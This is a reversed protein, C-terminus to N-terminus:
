PHLYFIKYIEKMSVRMNNYYACVFADKIGQVKMQELFERADDITEFSGIVYKYLTGNREEGVTGFRNLFNFYEKKAKEYAGVQVRFYINDLKKYPFDEIMKTYANEASVKEITKDIENEIAEIESGSQEAKLVESKKENKAKEALSALSVDPLEEIPQDFDVGKIDIDAGLKFRYSPDRDMFVNAQLANIVDSDEDNSFFYTM